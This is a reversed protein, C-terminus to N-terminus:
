TSAKKGSVAWARARLHITGASSRALTAHLRSRLRDRKEPPLSAIFAPAPGTGGLLPTWFDEFDRFVTEIEIPACRTGTLGADRFLQVLTDPTCIPFREGEDLAHAQSDVERAADWFFRLFQMGEKYDWVCAAITGGTACAQRMRELAGQPDPFFNLALLSAIVDYGGPRLPFDGAGAVAFSACSTSIHERAFAIFPESPDCGIVSEPEARECVAATLAGTGCGLDLWHLGSGPELWRVFEHALKRSWRGMFEDYTSGAAWQDSLRTM